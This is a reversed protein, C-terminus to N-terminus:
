QKEPSNSTTEAPTVKKAPNSSIEPEYTKKHQWCYKSGKLAARSCRSGSNTIALCQWDPIPKTVVQPSAAALPMEAKAKKLKNLETMEGQIWTLEDEQMKNQETLEEIKSTLSDVKLTLEMIENSMGLNSQSCSNLILFIIVSLTLIHRM